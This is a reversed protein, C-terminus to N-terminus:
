GNEMGGQPEAEASCERKGRISWRNRLSYTIGPEAFGARCRYYLACSLMHTASFGRKVLTHPLVEPILNSSGDVPPVRCMVCVSVGRLEGLRSMTRTADVYTSRFLVGNVCLVRRRIGRSGTRLCVGSSSIPLRPATADLYNSLFFLTSKVQSCLVVLRASGCFRSIFLGDVDFFYAATSGQWKSTLVVHVM